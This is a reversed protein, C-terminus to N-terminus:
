SGRLGIRVPMFSFVLDERTSRRDALKGSRYELDALTEWDRAKRPLYPRVQLQPCIEARQRIRKEIGKVVMPSETDVVAHYHEEGAVEKRFVRYRLIKSEDKILAQVQAMPNTPALGGIFVSNVKAIPLDLARHMATLHPVLRWPRLILYVYAGFLGLFLMFMHHEPVHTLLGYLGIAGMMVQLATMLAVIQVPGLGADALLHHLHSRDARVPSRGMWIRRIMVGITDYLPVAFFWLATVPAISRADGQSMAVFLWTLVFGLLTSGADGMFVRARPQWSFRLNFVLFGSIASGVAVLLPLFEGAGGVGNAVALLAVSTLALSGALGDVGDTMNMANITGVTAFVTMPVALPALVFLDRSLLHGFDELRIGGWYIMILVAIGQATFRLAVNLHRKDDVIGVVLLLLASVFIVEFGALGFGALAVSLGTFMAIGGVLPTHSDHLKHGGPKDVLDFRHALPMLGIISVLTVLTAFFWVVLLSM